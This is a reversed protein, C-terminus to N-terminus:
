NQLPWTADKKTGQSLHQQLEFRYFMIKYNKTLPHARCAQMIAIEGCQNLKALSWWETRPNHKLTLAEGCCLGWRLQTLWPAAWGLFDSRAQLLWVCCGLPEGLWTSPLLQLFVAEPFFWRLGQVALAIFGAWVLTLHRPGPRVQTRSIRHQSRLQIWLSKNITRPSTNAASNSLCVANRSASIICRLQAAGALDLCVRINLCQCDVAQTWPM